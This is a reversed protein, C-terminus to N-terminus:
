FTKVLTFEFPKSKNYQNYMPLLKVTKHKYKRTNKSGKSAVHIVDFLWIASAVGFYLEHQKRNDIALKYNEDMVSQSRTFLYNDYYLNAANMTTYAMYVSGAFAATVLLPTFHDKENVFHDGFGPLLMSLVMNGAGGPTRRTNVIYNATDRNFSTTPNAISKEPITISSFDSSDSITLIVRLPGLYEDVETMYNWYIEKGNGPSVKLYDGKLNVPEITSGDKKEFVVNINYFKGETANTLDYTIKIFEENTTFDVNEISQSM